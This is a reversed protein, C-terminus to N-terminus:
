LFFSSTKRAEVLLSLETMLLTPQTGMVRIHFVFSTPLRFFLLTLVKMRRKGSCVDASKQHVGTLHSLLALPEHDPQILPRHHIYVQNNHSKETLVSDIILTSLLSSRTSRTSGSEKEEEKSSRLVHKDDLVREYRGTKERPGGTQSTEEHGVENRHGKRKSGAHCKLLKQAQSQVGVCLLCYPMEALALMSLCGNYLAGVPVDQLSLCSLLLTM